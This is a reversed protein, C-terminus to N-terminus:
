TPRYVGATGLTGACAPYVPGSGCPGYTLPAGGGARRHLRGRGGHDQFLLRRRRRRSWGLPLPRDPWYAPGRRSPRPSWGSLWGLTGRPQSLPDEQSLCPEQIHVTIPSSPCGELGSRPIRAHVLVPTKMSPPDHFQLRASPHGGPWKQPFPWNPVQNRMSDPRQVSLYLLRVERSTRWIQGPPWIWHASCYTEPRGSRYHCDRGDAAAGRVALLGDSGELELKAKRGTPRFSCLTCCDTTEPGGGSRGHDASGLSCLLLYEATRTIYPLRLRRRSRWIQGHGALDLARWSVIIAM